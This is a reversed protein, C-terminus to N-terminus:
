KKRKSRVVLAIFVIVIVVIVILGILMGVSLGEGGPVEGSPSAMVEIDEGTVPGEEREPVEESISTLKLEANDGARISIVEVLLDYIRDNDLDVKANGGEKVVVSITDSQIKLTVTGQDKNVATVKVSHEIVEKSGANFKLVKVDSIIRTAGVALEPEPIWIFVPLSSTAGGSSSGAAAAAAAAAPNDVNFTINTSYNRNGSTDNVFVSLIYGVQDVISSNTYNFNTGFFGQDGTMTVNNLGNDLSFMVTGNENLTINFIVSSAAVTSGSTPSNLTINNPPTIDAVSYNSWSSVNFVVNAANLTTLNTCDACTAGDKLVELDALDTKSNAYFSVNASSNLSTTTQAVLVLVYDKGISINTGLVGALSTGNMPSVFNIEGNSRNIIRLSLNEGLITNNNDVIADTFNLTLRGNGGSGRGSLNFTMDTLTITQNEITVNGGVTNAGDASAEVEIAFGNLSINRLTLDTYAGTTVNSLAIATYNNSYSENASISSGNFDITVGEAQVNICVRRGRFISYGYGTSSTYETMNISQNLYYTGAVTINGCEYIHEGASSY